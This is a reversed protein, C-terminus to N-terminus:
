WHGLFNRQTVKLREGGVSGSPVVVTNLYGKKYIVPRNQVKNLYFLYAPNHGHQHIFCPHFNQTVWQCSTSDTDGGRSDPRGSYFYIATNLGLLTTILYSGLNQGPLDKRQPAMLGLAAIGRTAEEAWQVYNILHEIKPLILNGASTGIPLTLRRRRAAGARIQRRGVWPPPFPVPNSGAAAM